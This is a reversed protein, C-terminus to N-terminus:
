KKNIFDRINRWHIGMWSMKSIKVLFSTPIKEPYQGQLRVFEAVVRKWEHKVESASMKSGFYRKRKTLLADRCHQHFSTKLSDVDVPGTSSDCIGQVFKQLTAPSAEVQIKHKSRTIGKPRVPKVDQKPKPAPKPAPQNLRERMLTLLDPLSPDGQFVPQSEPLNLRERMLTLLDPLSPDGQLVFPQPQEHFGPLCLSSALLDM